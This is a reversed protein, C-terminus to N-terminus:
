TGLSELITNFECNKAPAGDYKWNCFPCYSADPLPVCAGKDLGDLCNLCKSSNVLDTMPQARKTAMLMFVVLTYRDHYSGPCKADCIRWMGAAGSYRGCKNECLPRDVVGNCKGCKITRCDVHHSTLKYEHKCLSAM